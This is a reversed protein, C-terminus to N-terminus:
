FYLLLRVSASIGAAPSLADHDIALRSSTGSDITTKQVSTGSAGPATSTGESELVKEGRGTAVYAIGWGLEAGLSMKPLFFYEAGAFLRFGAGVTLGTKRQLVRGAGNVGQIDPVSDINNASGLDPSSIADGSPDVTIHSLPSANLANGYTFKDSVQGLMLMVEWGYIGQLRHGKRNEVGGALMLQWNVHSWTNDKLQKAAPFAQVSGAEAARDVTPNRVTTNAYSVRLGMRFARASDLMYKATFMPMGPSIKMAGVGVMRTLDIGLGWDGKEPLVPRGDKSLIQSSLSLSTAVLVLAFFRAFNKM